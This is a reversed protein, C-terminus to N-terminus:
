RIEAILREVLRWRVRFRGRLGAVIRGTLAEEQTAAGVGAGASDGLVLLRLPPGEGAEGERPGPAEPLVPTDRRVRRGQVLLLPGLAWKALALRM